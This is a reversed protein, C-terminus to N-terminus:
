IMDSKVGSCLGSTAAYKGLCWGPQVMWGLDSRMEWGEIKNNSIVNWDCVSYAILMYLGLSELARIGKYETREGRCLASTTTVPSKLRWWGRQDFSSCSLLSVSLESSKTVQIILLPNVRKLSFPIM